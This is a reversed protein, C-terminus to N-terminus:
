SANFRKGEKALMIFVKGENFFLITNGENGPAVREQYGSFSIGYTFGRPEESM